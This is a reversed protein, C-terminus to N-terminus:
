FEHGWGKHQWGYSAFKTGRVDTCNAVAREIVAALECYLRLKAAYALCVTVIQCLKKTGKRPNM